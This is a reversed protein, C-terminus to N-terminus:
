ISKFNTPKQNFLFLFFRFWCEKKSYFICFVVYKKQKKDM